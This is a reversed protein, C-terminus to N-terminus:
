IGNEGYTGLFPDNWKNNKHFLVVDGSGEWTVRAIGSSKLTWKGKNGDSYEIFGRAYCPSYFEHASLRSDVPYAKSFFLRVSKKTPAFKKCSEIVISDSLDSQGMDDIRLTKIERSFSCNMFIAALIPSFYITNNM